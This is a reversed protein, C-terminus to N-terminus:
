NALPRNFVARQLSASRDEWKVSKEFTEVYINVLDWGQNGFHTLADHLLRYGDNAKWCWQRGVRTDEVRLIIHTYEWQQPMDM